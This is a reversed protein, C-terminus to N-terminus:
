RPLDHPEPRHRTPPADHPGHSLAEGLQHREAAEAGLRAARNRQEDSRVEADWHARRVRDGSRDRADARRLANGGHPPPYRTPDNPRPDERDRSRRSDAAQVGDEQVRGQPTLAALAWADVEGEGAGRVKGVDSM